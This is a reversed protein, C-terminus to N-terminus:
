RGDVGDNCIFRVLYAVCLPHTRSFDWYSSVFTLGQTGVPHLDGLISLISNIFMDAALVADNETNLLLCPTLLLCTNCNKYTTVITSYLIALIEGAVNTADSNPRLGQGM